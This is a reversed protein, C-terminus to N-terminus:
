CVIRKKLVFYQAPYLLCVIVIPDFFTATICCHCCKRKTYIYLYIFPMYIFLVLAQIRNYKTLLADLGIELVQRCISSKNQLYPPSVEPRVRRIKQTCQRRASRTRSLFIVPGALRSVFFRQEEYKIHM